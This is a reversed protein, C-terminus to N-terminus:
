VLGYVCVSVSLECLAVQTWPGREFWLGTTDAAATRGAKRPSAFSCTYRHRGILIQVGSDM